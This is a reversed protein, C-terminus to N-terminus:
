PLVRVSAIEYEVRLLHDRVDALVPREFRTVDDEGARRLPNDGAMRLVLLNPQFRAVFDNAGDAVEARQLELQGSRVHRVVCATRCLCNLM